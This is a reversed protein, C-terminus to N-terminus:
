VTLATELEPTTTVSSTNKKPKPRVTVSILMLFTCFCSKFVNFIYFSTPVAHWFTHLCPLSLAHFCLDVYQCLGMGVDGKEGGEREGEREGERGGERGCDTSFLIVAMKGM